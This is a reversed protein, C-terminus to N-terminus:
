IVVSVNQNEVIKEMSSPVEVPVSLATPMGMIPTAAIAPTGNGSIAPASTEPANTPSRVDGNELM